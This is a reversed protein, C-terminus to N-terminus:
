VDNVTEAEVTDGGPAHAEKGVEQVMVDRDASVEKEALLQNIKDSRPIIQIGIKKAM